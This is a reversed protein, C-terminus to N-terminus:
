VREDRVGSFQSSVSRVAVNKGSTRKILVATPQSGSPDTLDVRNVVVNDTAIVLGTEAGRATITGLQTGEGRYGGAGTGVAFGGNTSVDIRNIRTLPTYIGVAPAWSSARRHSGLDLRRGDAAWRSVPSLAGSLTM